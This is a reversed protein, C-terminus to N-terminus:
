SWCSLIRDKQSTLTILDPPSTGGWGTAEFFMGAPFHFRTKALDIEHNGYPTQLGSKCDGGHGLYLMSEHVNSGWKESFTTDSQVLGSVCDNHVLQARTFHRGATGGVTGVWIGGGYYSHSVLDVYTLPPDTDMVCYAPVHTGRVKIHFYGSELSNPDPHNSKIDNCTVTGGAMQYNLWYWKKRSTEPEYPNSACNLSEAAEKTYGIEGVSFLSCAKSLDCYSFAICTNTSICVGFCSDVTISSYQAIPEGYPKLCPCEQRFLSANYVQQQESKGVLFFLVILLSISNYTTGRFTPMQHFSSANNRRRKYFHSM